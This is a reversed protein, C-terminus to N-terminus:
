DFVSVLADDVREAAGRLVDYAVAPFALPLTWTLLKLAAGVALGVPGLNGALLVALFNTAGQAFAYALGVGVAGVLMSGSHGRTLQACRGLAGAPSRREHTIAGAQVIVLPLLLWVMWIAPATGDSRRAVTVTVVFLPVFFVLSAAAFRFLNRWWVRLTRAFV